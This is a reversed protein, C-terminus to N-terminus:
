HFNEKSVTLNNVQNHFKYGEKDEWFCEKMLIGQFDSPYCTFLILDSSRDLLQSATTWGYISLTSCVRGSTSIWPILLIIIRMRWRRHRGKSVNPRGSRLWSAPGAPSLQLSCAEAKLVPFFSCSVEGPLARGQLVPATLDSEWLFMNTLISTM